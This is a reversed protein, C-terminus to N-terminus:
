LLHPRAGTSMALRRSSSVDSIIGTGSTAVVYGEERRVTFYVAEAESRLRFADLGESGRSKPFDAATAYCSFGGRTRLGRM